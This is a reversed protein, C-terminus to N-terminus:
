VFIALLTRLVSPLQAFRESRVARQHAEADRVREELLIRGLHHEAVWSHM